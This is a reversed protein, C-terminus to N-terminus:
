IRKSDIETNEILLILILSLKFKEKIKFM